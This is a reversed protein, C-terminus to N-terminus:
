GFDQYTVLLAKDFNYNCYLFLNTFFTFLIMKNLPVNFVRVMYQQITNFNHYSFLITVILM